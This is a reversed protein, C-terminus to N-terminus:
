NFALNERARPNPTDACTQAPFDRKQNFAPDEGACTGLLQRSRWACTYPFIVIRLSPAAMLQYSSFYHM